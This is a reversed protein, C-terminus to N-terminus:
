GAPRATVILNDRYHGSSRDFTGACTILELKPELTPLYVLEAPFDNKPYIESTEVAFGATSGDARDVLVQAGPRLESLRAFVAPGTASDVHGLVVAPGPQGPRPGEDYWGATEWRSPTAISRDPLKALRELPSEVAILPIRIRVPEAVVNAQRLSRFGAAGNDAASTSTSSAPQSTSGSDGVRPADSEACGVLGGLLAIAVAWRQSRRWGPM